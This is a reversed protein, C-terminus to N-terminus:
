KGLTYRNLNYEPDQLLDIKQELESVALELEEIRELLYEIDSRVYRDHYNFFNSFVRIM